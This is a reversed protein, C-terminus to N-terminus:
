SERMEVKPTCRIGRTVAVTIVQDKYGSGSLTLNQVGEALSRLFFRGTPGTLFPKAAAEVRVKIGKLPEGAANTVTGIVQYPHSALKVIVRRNRYNTYHDTHKSRLMEFLKDLSKVHKDALAFLSNMKKTADAGLVRNEQPQLLLNHFNDRLTELETATTKDIGYDTLDPELLTITDLLKGAEAILENERLKQLDHIVYHFADAVNQKENNHAYAQLSRGTELMFDELATRASTKDGSSKDNHQAQEIATKEIATVTTKLGTMYDSYKPMKAAVTPDLTNEIATLMRYMNLRSNQSKRM